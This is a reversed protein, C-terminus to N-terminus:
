EMPVEQCVLALEVEAAATMIVGDGLFSMMLEPGEPLRPNKGPDLDPGEAARVDPPLGADVM